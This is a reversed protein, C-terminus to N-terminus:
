SERNATDHNKDYDDPKEENPNMQIDPPFDGEREGAQFEKGLEDGDFKAANDPIKQSPARNLENEDLKSIKFHAPVKKIPTTVQKSKM